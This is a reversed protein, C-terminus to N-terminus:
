KLRTIWPGSGYRDELCDIGICHATAQGSDFSGKLFPSIVDDGEVLDFVSFSVDFEDLVLSGFESWDVIMVCIGEDSFEVVAVGSFM